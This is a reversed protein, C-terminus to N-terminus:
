SPAVSSASWSSSRVDTITTDSQIAAMGAQSQPKGRRDRKPSLRRLSSHAIQRLEHFFPAPDDIAFSDISDCCAVLRVLDLALRSRPISNIKWGAAQDGATGTRGRLSRWTWRLDARLDRSRVGVRYGSPFDTRGHRLMEYLYRPFDAGAAVSLPLSGWFRGNLELFAWRRPQECVRYECMGVGTYDLAGILARTADLLEPDLPTSMRYTSGHGSTAHLRRHQFAYLLRGERALFEVGVGCGPIWEQLIYREKCLLRPALWEMCEAGGAFSRVFQKQSLDSGSLSAIPKAVVAGRITRCFEEADGVSTVTQSRPTRIDLSRALEETQSKDFAIRHTRESLLQIPALRELVARHQQIAVVAPETAPIVLEFQHGCLLQQLAPLWVEVPSEPGPISHRCALFRSRNFCVDEPGWAAHVSLGSRGLSRIIPLMMRPDAGLALM